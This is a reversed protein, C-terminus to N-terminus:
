GYMRGGDNNGPGRSTPLRPGPTGPVCLRELIKNQATIASIIGPIIDTNLKTLMTSSFAVNNLVALLVEQHKKPDYEGEIVSQIFDTYRYFHAAALKPNKFDIEGPGKSRDIDYDKSRYSIGLGGKDVPKTLWEAFPDKHAHEQTAVKAVTHSVKHSDLLSLGPYKDELIKAISRAINAAELMASGSDNAYITPLQLYVCEPYFYTLIDGWKGVPLRLMLGEWNMVAKDRAVIWGDNKLKDRLGKPENKINIRLAIKHARDVFQIRKTTTNNHEGKITEEHGKFNQCLCAVGLPLTEYIGRALRKIMNNKILVNIARYTTRRNINNTELFSSLTNKDSFHKLVRLHTLNPRARTQSMKQSM